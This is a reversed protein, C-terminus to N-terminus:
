KERIFQSPNMGFLRQFAHTFHANDAFGCHRAVEAITYRPYQKLMQKAENMRVTLIYNTPTLHTLVHLRRRLQSPSMNVEAAVRTANAEGTVMLRLIVVNLHSLFDEPNERENQNSLHTTELLALQERIREQQRRHYYLLFIVVALILLVVVGIAIALTLHRAREEEEKQQQLTDLGFEAHYRALSEASALNYLSDRLDNFRELEIRASDSDINWLTEYLGKRAHMEGRRDGLQKFLGAAERYARVAEPMHQLGSKVAGLQNLSIALSQQMGEHHRFYPIVTDLLQGAEEYRKLGILAATKQSQRIMAKHPRKLSVETQYAQEAYEIAKQDEGMAHYMEAAMGQVVALRFEKGSQRAMELARLVYPEARQPQRASIYISALANLSMSIREMDGSQADIEYCQTAYGVAREYCSLRVNSIALLNLCDSLMTKDHGKKLLPLSKLAYAEAQTYHQAAYFYDSSWFWVWARISDLPINSSVVILKDTFSEQDLRLFFRNATAVDQQKDFDSLVELTEEHLSIPTQSRGDVTWLLLLFLLASGIKIKM